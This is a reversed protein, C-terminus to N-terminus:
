GTPTRAGGLRRLIDPLTEPTVQIVVIDMQVPEPVTGPQYEKWIFPLHEQADAASLSFLFNGKKMSSWEYMGRFTPGGSSARHVNLGDDPTACPEPRRVDEPILDMAKQSFACCATADKPEACFLPDGFPIFERTEACLLSM